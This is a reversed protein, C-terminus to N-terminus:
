RGHGRGIGIIEIIKIADRRNLNSTLARERIGRLHRAVLLDVGLQRQSDHTHGFALGLMSHTQFALGDFVFGAVPFETPNFPSNPLEESQEDCHGADAGARNNNDHALGHPPGCGTGCNRSGRQEEHYAHHDQPPSVLVPSVM